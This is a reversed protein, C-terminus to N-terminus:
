HVQAPREQALGFPMPRLGELQLDSLAIPDAAFVINQDQVAVGPFVAVNGNADYGLFVLLEKPLQQGPSFTLPRTVAYYGQAPLPMLTQLWSEDTTLVGKKGFNWIRGERGDPVLVVPPGQDSTPSFYVLRRAPVAQPNEPHPYLTRYLGAPPLTNADSM